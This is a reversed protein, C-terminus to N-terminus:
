GSGPLTTHALVGHHQGSCAPGTVWVQGRQGASPATVIITAPQGRYRALDILGPQTGGTVQMACAHLRAVAPPPVTGRAPGARVAHYRTLAAEAQSALRGPQYDTSSHIIAPVAAFNAGAAPSNLTGTPLRSGGHPRAASGSSATAGGPSQGLSALGYAIGALVILAAAATGLVGLRGRAPRGSRAPRRRWGHGSERSPGPQGAARPAAGAALPTAVGNGVGAPDGDGAPRARAAEAALASDLRVALHDPMSPAPACALLTTVEALGADLSACRPCGSLHARIRASRRRGLLGERFEALVGADPHRTM